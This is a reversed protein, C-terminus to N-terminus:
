KNPIPQAGHFPPAGKRERLRGPRFQREDLYYAPNENEAAWGPIGKVPLPQLDRPSGPGDPGTLRALLADDLYDLRREAPWTFYEAPVALLVGKGTLGHYPALCHELLAHGFPVFDMTALVQRRQEWFLSHWQFATLLQTLVPDACAIVLGSEDFQTLMDRLPSRRNPTAQDGSAMHLANIGAKTRPFRLWVLANFADHWNRARM